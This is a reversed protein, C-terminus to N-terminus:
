SRVPDDSYDFPARIGDVNQSSSKMIKRLVTAPQRGLAGSLSAYAFMGLAYDRAVGVASFDRELKYAAWSDDIAWIEREYVLLASFDDSDTPVKHEIMHARLELRLDFKSLDLDKLARIADGFPAPDGALGIWAKGKCVPVIKPAAQLDHVTAGEEGLYSDGAIIAPGTKGRVAAILTM